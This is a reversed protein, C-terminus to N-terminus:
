AKGRSRRSLATLSLLAAGLFGLAGPLPVAPVPTDTQSVGSAGAGGPGVAVTTAIDPNSLDPLVATLSPTDDLATWVESESGFRYDWLAAWWRREEGGSRVSSLGRRRVPGSQAYEFLAADCLAIHRLMDQTQFLGPTFCPVDFPGRAFLPRRTESPTPLVEEAYRAPVPPWTLKPELRPVLWPLFQRPREEEAYRVPVVPWDLEPAQRPILWALFLGALVALALTARFDAKRM